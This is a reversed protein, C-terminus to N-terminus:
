KRDSKTSLYKRMILEIGSYWFAEVPNTSGVFLHKIKFSFCEQDLSAGDTIELRKPEKSSANLLVSRSHWANLPVVSCPHAVGSDVATVVAGDPTAVQTTGHAVGSIKDVPQLRSPSSASLHHESEYGFRM